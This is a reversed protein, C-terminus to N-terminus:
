GKGRVWRNLAALGEIAPRPLLGLGIRRIRFGMPSLDPIVEVKDIRSARVSPDFAAVTAEDLYLLTNYRYWYSVTRTGAIAPRVLDIPVFGRKAFLRRWYEYPRENVHGEGGQGPVAASFLVAPAHACLSEVLGEAATEPLHEALELCQVLDFRQGLEFPQALDHLVFETSDICLSEVASAAGDLGLVRSVGRAKWVSLWVGEGCGIDLVSQPALVPEVVDIVAEASRRSSERFYEFFDADYEHRSNSQSEGKQSM